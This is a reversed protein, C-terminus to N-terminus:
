KPRSKTQRATTDQCAPQTPAPALEPCIRRLFASTKVAREEDPTFPRNVDRVIRDGKELLAAVIDFGDGFM